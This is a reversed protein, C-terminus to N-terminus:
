NQYESNSESEMILRYSPIIWFGAWWEGTRRNPFYMWELFMMFFMQTSVISDMGVGNRAWIAYALIFYTPNKSFLMLYGFM